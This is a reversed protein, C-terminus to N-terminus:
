GAAAQTAHHPTGLDTLRELGKPVVVLACPAERSLIRSVDAFLLSSVPGHRGAGVVILRAGQERALEALQEATAGLLVQEETELDDPLLRRARRVVAVGRHHARNRERERETQSNFLKPDARVHALLVRAGQDRGLEGATQVVDERDEEVACIITGAM